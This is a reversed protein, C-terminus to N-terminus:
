RLLERGSSIKSRRTSASAFRWHPKTAITEFDLWKLRPGSQPTRLAHVCRNSSESKGSRIEELQSSLVLKARHEALYQEEYRGKLKRADELLNELVVIKSADAKNAQAAALDRRLKRIQLKLETTSRGTLVDDLENAVGSLNHEDDSSTELEENQGAASAARGSVGKQGKTQSDLTRQTSAELESVREELLAVTEKEVTYDEGMRALKDRTQSLEHQVDEKDKLLDGNKKELRAITGKYNEM